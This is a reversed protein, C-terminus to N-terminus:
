EDFEVYMESFEATAMDIKSGFEFCFSLGNHSKAVQRDYGAFDTFHDPVEIM